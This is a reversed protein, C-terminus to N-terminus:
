RESTLGAMSSFLIIRKAANDMTTATADPHAWLIVIEGSRALISAGALVGRM